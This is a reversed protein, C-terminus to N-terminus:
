ATKTVAVAIDWRWDPTSLKIKGNQTKINETKISSGLSTDIWEVLYEGEELDFSVCEAIFDM